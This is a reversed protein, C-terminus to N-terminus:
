RYPPCGGGLLGAVAPGLRPGQPDCGLPHVGQIEGLIIDKIEEM